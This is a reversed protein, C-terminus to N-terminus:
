FFEGGLKDAYQELECAFSKDSLDTGAAIVFFDPVCFGYRVLRFLGFGKGGVLSIDPECDKRYIIM